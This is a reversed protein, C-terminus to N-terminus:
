GGGILGSFRGVEGSFAAFAAIDGYRHGARSKQHFAEPKKRL